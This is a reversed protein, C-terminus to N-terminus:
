NLMPSFGEAWYDKDVEYDSMEFSDPSDRFGPQARLREIAQEAKQDTSYVGNLKTDEHGDPMAHVHWLVAMTAM